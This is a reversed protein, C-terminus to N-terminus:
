KQMCKKRHEKERKQIREPHSQRKKLWRQFEFCVSELPRLPIAIRYPLGDCEGPEAKYKVVEKDGTESTLIRKYVGPKPVGCLYDPRAM